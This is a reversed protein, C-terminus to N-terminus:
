TCINNQKDLVLGHANLVQSGAPLLLKTPDYQYRFKGSGGIIPAGSPSGLLTALLALMINIFAADGLSGSQGPM